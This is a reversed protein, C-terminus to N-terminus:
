QYLANLKSVEKHIDFTDHKVPTDNSPPKATLASAKKSSIKKYVTYIVYLIIGVILLAKIIFTPDTYSNGNSNSDKSSSYTDYIDKTEISTSHTEASM